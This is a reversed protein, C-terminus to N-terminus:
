STPVPSAEGAVCSTGDVRLSCPCRYTASTRLMDCIKRPPLLVGLRTCAKKQSGLWTELLWCWQGDASKASAPNRALRFIM